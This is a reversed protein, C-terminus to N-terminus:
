SPSYHPWTADTGDPAQLYITPTGSTVFGAQAVAWSDPAYAQVLLRDKHPALAPDTDIDALVKKRDTESGIVTLRIKKADDFSASGIAQMVEARTSERGNKQYGHGIKDSDVGFNQGVQAEVIPLAPAGAPPAFEKPGWVGDAGLSRWVGKGTHYSGIQKGSRLLAYEGETQDVWTLVCPCPKGEACGCDCAPCDALSRGALSLFFLLALILPRM